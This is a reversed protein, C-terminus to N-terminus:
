SKQDYDYKYNEIPTSVMCTFRVLRFPPIVAADGSRQVGIGLAARM